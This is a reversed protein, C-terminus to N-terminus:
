QSWDSLRQSRPPAAGSFGAGAGLSYGARVYSASARPTIPAAWSPQVDLSGAAPVRSASAALRGSRSGEGGGGGGGGAHSHGRRRDEFADDDSGTHGLTRAFANVVSDRVHSPLQEVVPTVPSAPTPSFLPASRGGGTAITTAAASLATPQHEQRRQMTVYLEHLVTQAESISTPRSVESGAVSREIAEQTLRSRGGAQEIAELPRRSRVGTSRVSSRGSTVSAADDLDSPVVTRGLSQM